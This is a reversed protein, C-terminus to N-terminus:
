RELEIIKIIYDYIDEWKKLRIAKIGAENCWWNHPRDFLIKMCGPRMSCLNGPNDDVLIDLDLIHKSATMVVKREDIFPFLEKLRNIKEAATDPYTATTIYVDLYPHSILRELCEVANKTPEVTKWFGNQRLIYFLSDHNGKNIYQSIDWSAVDEPKVDDGTIENHRKLWADVLDWLVDDLDVGIKIKKNM